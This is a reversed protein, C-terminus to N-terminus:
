HDIDEMTNPIIIETGQLFIYLNRYIGIYQYPIYM